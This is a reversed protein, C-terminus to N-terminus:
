VATKSLLSFGRQILQFAKHMVKILKKKIPMRLIWKSLAMRKLQTMEVALM